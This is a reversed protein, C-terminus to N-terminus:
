RENLKNFRNFSVPHILNHRGLSRFFFFFGWWMEMKLANLNHRSSDHKCMYFQIWKAWSKENARNLTIKHYSWNSHSFFRNPKTKALTLFLMRFSRVMQILMCVRLCCGFPVCLFHLHHQMLKQYAGNWHRFTFGHYYCKMQCCALNLYQLTSIM